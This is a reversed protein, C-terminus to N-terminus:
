YNFITLFQIYNIVLVTKFALKDNEDKKPNDLSIQLSDTNEIFEYIIKILDQIQSITPIDEVLYHYNEKPFNVDIQTNLGYSYDCIIAFIKLIKIRLNFLINLNHKSDNTILFFSIETQILQLIQNLIKPYDKYLSTSVFEPSNHLRSLVDIIKGIQIFSIM